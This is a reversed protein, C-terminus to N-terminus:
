GSITFQADSVTVSKSGAGAWEQVSAKQGFTFFWPQVFGCSGVDSSAGIKRHTGVSTEVGDVALHYRFQTNVTGFFSIQVAVLFTGSVRVEIEDDALRPSPSGFFTGAAAWLTLKVPSTSLGTQATTGDAVYLSAFHQLGAGM